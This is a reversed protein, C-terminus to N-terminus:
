PRTMMFWASAPSHALRLMRIAWYGVTPEDMLAIALVASTGSESVYRDLDEQLRRANEMLGCMSRPSQRLADSLAEYADILCEALTGENLIVALMARRLHSTM